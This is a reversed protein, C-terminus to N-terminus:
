RCRRYSVALGNGDIVALRRGRLVYLYSSQWKQKGRRCALRVSWVNKVRAPLFRVFTCHGRDLIVRGRAIHILLPFRARASKGAGMARCLAPRLAWKGNLSPSVPAASVLTSQLGTFVLGVAALVVGKVSSQGMNM